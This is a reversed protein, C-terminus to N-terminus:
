PIVTLAQAESNVKADRYLLLLGTQSPSATDGGPVEAIALTASGRPAVGAPPVGGDVYRPTGLTVTMNEIYDTVTGTFYNDYGLVTFTFQSSPTLGMAALPATLIINGSNLDADAYYYASATGTSLNQVAVVTQGSSAFTGLEINYVAFDPITDGNTDIDVEFGGPYVPHSRAGYTNIAFQVASGALRVGVSRLDILAYNDGPGPELGADLKPSTGTLSFVEVRGPLVGRNMLRAGGTGNRLKVTAPTASVAASKHPLIHWPMRIADAGSGITLYGDYEVTQLLAGNGGSAGGNLTWTPLKAANVKLQVNFTVTGRAPLTVSSPASISVAGNTRDDAYRFASRVPLTFRTGTYNRLTVTRNLTLNSDASHYGFSLSPTAAKSDWAAFKASMARDVRVEGGGIRTIPALEGPLTAPNTYVNTEARNMLMAKIELPSRLPFAQVLLAAAGSVMPAAGSTGGFAETGTGTTAIASVSAGPAGIDPKISQFSYSPGRSSSGVM